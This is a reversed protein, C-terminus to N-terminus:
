NGNDLWDVVIRRWEEPAEIHFMHGCGPILEVTAGPLADALLKAQAPGCIVDEEGSVILTPCKIDTVVPRLDTTQYGGSEWAKIAALDAKVYQKEQELRAWIEPREPHATYLPMINNFMAEVEAADTAALVVETWRKWDRKAAPFWDAGDHRTLLREMEAAADGGAAEDIDTGIALPAAAICRTTGVPFLAAYTLATVAGFSHGLISVQELGLVGRVDNYFRAHGEASYNAPDSPPTSDGSGHPDIMYIQFRDRLLEAFAVLMDAAFGPGGVFMLMPEGEGMVSYSARRGDGLEITHKM